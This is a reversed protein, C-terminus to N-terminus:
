SDCEECIYTKLVQYAQESKKVSIFREYNTQVGFFAMIERLIRLHTEHDIPALVLIVTAVLEESFHVGKPFIGVSLGLGFVGDEPRSHAIALGPELYIYPGNRVINNIMHEVYEITIKGEDVLPQASMRISEKWDVSNKFVQIDKIDCVEIISPNKQLAMFNSRKIQSKFFSSLEQRLQKYNSPAVYKSIMSIVGEIFYQNLDINVHKSLKMLLNAKDEESLIPNVKMFPCKVNVNITSILLDLNNEILSVDEPSTIPFFVVDNSLAEIEKQIMKLSAQSEPCYLAINMKVKQHKGAKMHGGFHLALYATENDSIPLGISKSVYQMVDRTIEFLEPYNSKIQNVLPNAIQIGFRFRYISMKLHVFIAREIEQRGSFEICAIREFETILNRTLEYLEQDMKSSIKLSPTVQIRSGLLHIAIYIIEKSDFFEFEQRVFIYERTEIVSQVEIDKFSADSLVDDTLSLLVALSTLTGDVYRTELKSEINQLKSYYQSVVDYNIFNLVHRHYLSIIKNFYFLFVARKKIVNGRVRYGNRKESVLKLDFHSLETKVINMDAIVTNRSVLCMVMLEDVNIADKFALLKCIIISIRELPLFQFYSKPVQRNSLSSIIDKQQQTLFLGKSREFHIEHINLSTLWDNIKCLDYYISRKSVNLIHSLQMVTIYDNANLLANLISQSRSDLPFYQTM